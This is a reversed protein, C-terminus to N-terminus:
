LINRKIVGNNNESKIGHEARFLIHSRSCVLIVIKTANDFCTETISPVNHM